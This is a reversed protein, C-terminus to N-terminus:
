PSQGVAEVKEYCRLLGLFFLLICIHNSFSRLPTCSDTFQEVAHGWGFVLYYSARLLRCDCALM